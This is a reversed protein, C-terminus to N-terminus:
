QFLYVCVCVCVCLSVCFQLKLTCVADNKYYFLLHYNLRIFGHSIADLQRLILALVLHELGM